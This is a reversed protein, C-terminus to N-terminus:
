QLRDHAGETGLGFLRDHDIELDLTNAGAVHGVAVTEVSGILDDNTAKVVVDGLELRGLNHEVRLTALADDQVVGFVESKRAPKFQDLVFAQKLFHGAKDFPG